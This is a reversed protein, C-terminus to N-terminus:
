FTEKEKRKRFEICNCIHFFSIYIIGISSFMCVQLRLLDGPFMMDLGRYGDPLVCQHKGTLKVFCLPLFVLLMLSRLLHGAKTDERVNLQMFSLVFPCNESIHWVVCMKQFSFDVLVNKKRMELSNGSHLCLM